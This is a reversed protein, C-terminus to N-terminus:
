DPLKELLDDMQFYFYRQDCAPENNPGAHAIWIELTEPHFIANHLNTKMSVPEKVVDILTAVSLKGYSELIREVLLPYRHEHCFGTLLITDKPQRHVLVSVRGEKDKLVSQYESKTITCDALFFKDHDGNTEYNKPLKKPALLAYTSGKDIFHIQSETAYAAFSENSKGDAIIYYYECTRPNTTLIHKAEELTTANELIERMIFAMPTGDWYGYGWGGIEGISIKQSNMGTISGIFGAYGVNIFSNGNLPKAVILLATSQLGKGIGYDLVRVHYLSHDDTADGAVTIGSCHFMEPFLNLIIIKQLPLESGDAIGQMEQKFYEPVHTLVEDIKKIFSSVKTNSAQKPNDIYTAINRAIQEKALKGHQYGMEYPSGEVHLILQNDRKELYGNGEKLLIESHLPLLLILFSFLPLLSKLM